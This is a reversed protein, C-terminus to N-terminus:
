FGGPYAVSKPHLAPSLRQAAAAGQRVGLRAPCQARSLAELELPPSKASRHARQAYAASRTSAHLCHMPASGLAASTSLQAAASPVARLAGEPAALLPPWWTSMSSSARRRGSAAAPEPPPGLADHHLCCAAATSARRPLRAGAGHRGDSYAATRAGGSWGLLASKFNHRSLGLRGGAQHHTKRSVTPTSGSTCPARNLARRAPSRSKPPTTGLCPAPRGAPRPLRLLWRAPAAGAPYQSPPARRRRCARQSGPWQGPPARRPRAPARPRPRRLAPAAAAAAAPPRRSGAPFGPAGRGGRRARPVGATSSTRGPWGGLATCCVTHRRSMQMSKCRM